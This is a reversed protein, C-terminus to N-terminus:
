SLLADKMVVFADEQDVNINAFNNLTMETQGSKAKTFRDVVIDMANWMLMQMKSFDGFVLAQCVGTSSGKDLDNPLASTAFGNYGNVQNTLYDFAFRGSGSDIKLGKLYAKTGPNVVYVFNEAGANTQKQGAELELLHSWALTAGNTGGVVSGAGSLNIIGTPQNTGTGNFAADDMAKANANLIERALDQEASASRQILFRNDTVLVTVLREPKNVNATVQAGSDSAASGVATWTSTGGVVRPKSYDGTLGTITAAGARGAITRERLADAIGYDDVPVIQGSTTDVARTQGKAARAIQDVPVAIGEFNMGPNQHRMEQDVELERGELRGERAQMIANRISYNKVEEEYSDKKAASRAKNDAMKEVKEARAIARDLEEIEEHQSDFSETEEATFDRSEAKAKNVLSELAAHKEAREEKLQKLKKM